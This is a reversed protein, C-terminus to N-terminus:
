GASRVVRFPVIKRGREIALGLRAEIVELLEDFEPADAPCAAHGSALRPRHLDGRELEVPASEIERLLRGWRRVREAPDARQTLVLFLDHGYRVPVEDSECAAALRRALVGVVREAAGIGHRECVRELDELRFGLLAFGSELEGGSPGALDSALIELYRGNPLGTLPDTLSQLYSPSGPDARHLARAVYGAVASLMRRESAGFRRDGRDYLTLAGLARGEAVLPAALAARLLALAPDSAFGDLDFEMGSRPGPTGAALGAITRREAAARVSPCGGGRVVAQRLRDAAHGRALRLRLSRRDEELVWVAATAFPVLQQLKDLILTLNEELELRYSVSRSIEYLAHLERQIAALRSPAGARAQAEEAADGAAGEGSAGDRADSRLWAGLAEVVLPDFARRSEDHLESLARDPTLAARLADAETLECYRAAVALVRASRPISAGDLGDPVGSGDWRENRHRVTEATSEPLGLAAIFAAEEVAEPASRGFRRFTPLGTTASVTTAREVHHLCSAVELDDLEAPSLGASRGLALAVRQLRKWPAPGETEVALGSAVIRALTRDVARVRRWQARTREAAQLALVAAVPALMWPGWGASGAGIAIAAGAAAAVAHCGLARTAGGLGTREGRDLLGAASAAAAALRDMVAHVVVLGLLAGGPGISWAFPVPGGLGRYALAATWTACAATTTALVARVFRDIRGRSHRDLSAPGATLVHAVVAPGIGLLLLAAHVVSLRLALSGLGRRGLLGVLAAVALVAWCAPERIAPSLIVSWAAGAFCIGCAAGALADGFRTTRWVTV